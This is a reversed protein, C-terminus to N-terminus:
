SVVARSPRAFCCIRPSKRRRASWSGPLSIRVVRRSRRRRPGRERRGEFRHRDVAGTRDPPLIRLDRTTGPASIGVRDSRQGSPGRAASATRRGARRVESTGAVSRAIPHRPAAIPPRSNPAAPRVSPGSPRRPPGHVRSAERRGQGDRHRDRMADAGGGAAVRNTGPIGAPLDVFTGVGPVRHARRDGPVGTPVGELPGRGRGPVHGGAAGVELVM